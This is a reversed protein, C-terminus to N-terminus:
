IHVLNFYNTGGGLKEVRDTLIILTTMDYIYYFYQNEMIIHIVKNFYENNNMILYAYFM